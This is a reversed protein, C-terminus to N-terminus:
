AGRLMRNLINDKLLVHHRLAAAIHGLVLATMLYGLIEHGEHSLGAIADGKAVAFKPVDFLWFFTLPRDNASSMIWGTVPMIFMLAYLLWHVAHATAKEWGPMHTPMPPPTHTLRWVLRFASLALVTLGISKHIPMAPLGKPLGDHLLGIALNLIILVAITWHLARAVSNYHLEGDTM